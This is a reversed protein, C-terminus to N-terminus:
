IDVTCMWSSEAILCAADKCGARPGVSLTGEGGCGRNRSGFPCGRGERHEVSCEKGRQEFLTFFRVQEGQMRQQDEAASAGQM